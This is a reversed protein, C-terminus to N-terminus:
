LDAAAGNPLLIEGTSPWILFIDSTESLHSSVLYASVSGLVASAGRQAFVYLSPTRARALLRSVRPLTAAFKEIGGTQPSNRRTRTLRKNQRAAPFLALRAEWM